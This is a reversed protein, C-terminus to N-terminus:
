SFHKLAEKEDKCVPLVKKVGILNFLQEIRKPLSCVKMDGKHKRLEDAISVLVGIAKISMFEIHALNIILNYNGEQILKRFEQRITYATYSDFVGWIDVIKIDDDYQHVQVSFEKM